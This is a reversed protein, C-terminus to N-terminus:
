AAVYRGNLVQRLKALARNQVQRVRENSLGVIRSVQALTKGADRGELGFRELLVTREIETLGARNDVVIERIDEVVDQRQMQDRRVDYDSREMDPDFPVGFRRSYRGVKGAMRHFGKLIARCAYTSFKFGRSVDFKEIARLLAVNGESILEPFEVHPIRTRKAMAIVLSLNAAALEERVRQVHEHWTLMELARDATPGKRQRAQLRALQYRAFYYKLFLGAEEDRGLAKRAPADRTDEPVEPFLRWRVPGRAGDADAFYRDKAGPDDFSAHWVAEIKEPIKKYCERQRQTLRCGRGCIECRNARTKTQM